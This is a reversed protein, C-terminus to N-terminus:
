HMWAPTPLSKTSLNVVKRSLTSATLTSSILSAHSIILLMSLIINKFTSPALSFHAIFGFQNMGSVFSIGGCMRYCCRNIL